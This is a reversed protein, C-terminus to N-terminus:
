GFVFDVANKASIEIRRVVLNDVFEDRLTFNTRLIDLFVEGVLFGEGEGVRDDEFVRM